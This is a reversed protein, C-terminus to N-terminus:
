EGLVTLIYDTYKGAPIVGTEIDRRSVWTVEKVEVPDATIVVDEALVGTYMLIIRSDFRLFERRVVDTYEGKSLGLEEFLERELTDDPQELGEVHGGPLGFGGRPLVTMLAKDGTENLLIIKSSVPHRPYTLQKVTRRIKQYM